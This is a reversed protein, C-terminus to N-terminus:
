TRVPRYMFKKWKLLDDVTESILINEGKFEIYNKFYKEYKSKNIEIEEKLDM